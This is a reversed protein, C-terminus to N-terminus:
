GPIRVHNLKKKNKSTQENNENLLAYEPISDTFGVRQKIHM